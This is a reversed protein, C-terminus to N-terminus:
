ELVLQPHSVVFVVLNVVNFIHAEQKLCDVDFHHERVEQPYGVVNLGDRLDEVSSQVLDVVDKQILDLHLLVLRANLVRDQHVKFLVIPLVCVKVEVRVPFQINLLVLTARHLEIDTSDVLAKVRM